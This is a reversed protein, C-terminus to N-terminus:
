TSSAPRPERSGTPRASEPSAAATAAERPSSTSARRAWTRFPREVYRRMLLAYLFSAPVVVAIWLAVTGISGDDSLSFLMECLYIALVLHILYVSYSLEALGRVRPTAFPARAWVPGLVIASMVLGRSLTYTLTLFTETRTLNGATPGSVASAHKGYFYACVGCAILAFPLAWTALRRTKDPDLDGLQGYGWALTMGLGFSFAWGPLQDIAVLQEVWGPQNGVNIAALVGPLHEAGEKWAITIAAALVLGAIPHRYYPKAILPFVLYFCVIVSVMWLAGNIGFGILVNSDLMRAPMQMGVLHVLVNPFSPLGTAEVGPSPPPAALFGLLALMVALTIWYPPVLRAGRIVAFSRLPGLEGGRRVVSMFLVFGSIIFFADIVNGLLGWTILSTTTGPQVAGALGLLHFAVVGLIAYGRFGEIAAIRSPAAQETM